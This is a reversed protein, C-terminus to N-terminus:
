YGGAHVIKPRSWSAELQELLALAERRLQLAYEAEFIAWEAQKRADRVVERQTKLRPAGRLVLATLEAIVKPMFDMPEVPTDANAATAQRQGEEHAMSQILRFAEESVRQGIVMTPFSKASIRM